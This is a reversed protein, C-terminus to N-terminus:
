ATTGAKEEQFKLFGGAALGASALTGLFAGIKRTKDVVGATDGGPGTILKILCFAFAVAGLGLLVQGWTVSGVDPLKMDAAKMAVIVVMVIGILVALLTLTFHWAGWSVDGLGLVRNGNGLDYGYWKFFSFILLAIGSVGIVKDGNSLKNVDFGAL